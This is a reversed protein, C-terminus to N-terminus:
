FIQNVSAIPFIIPLIVAQLLLVVEDLEEPPDDELEDEEPDEELEDELEEELPLELEEDLLEEDLLEEDLLEEEPPNDEELEPLKQLIFSASKTEVLSPQLCIM